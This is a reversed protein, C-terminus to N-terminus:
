GYFPISSRWSVLYDQSELIFKRSYEVPPISCEDPLEDASYFLEIPQLEVPLDIFESNYEKKRLKEMDQRAREISERIGEEIKNIADIKEM